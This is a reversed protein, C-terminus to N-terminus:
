DFQGNRARGADEIAVGISYAAWTVVTLIAQVLEAEQVESMELLGFAILLSVIAAWFKRSKLVGLLKAM